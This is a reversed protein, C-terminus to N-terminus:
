VAHFINLQNVMASLKKQRMKAHTKKMTDSRRKRSEPTLRELFTKTRKAISEPRLKQGKHSISLKIKQEESMKKGKNYSPQGKRAQNRKILQEIMKPSAKKGRGAESIKRKHEESLKGGKPKPRGKLAQSIKKKSEEATKGISGGGKVNMLSIGCSKYLDMYLQEYMNMTDQGCDGPLEHILEFVHKDKGYKRISAYLYPTHKSNGHARWRIGINWSQGIYVRGSPSTVKYIGSVNKM